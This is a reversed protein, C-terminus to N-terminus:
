CNGKTTDKPKPGHAPAACTVCQEQWPPAWTVSRCLSMHLAYPISTNHWAQQTPQPARAARQRAARATGWISVRLTRPTVNGTLQLSSQTGCRLLPQRLRLGDLDCIVRCQTCTLSTFEGAMELRLISTSGTLANFRGLLLATVPRLLLLLSCIRSTIADQLLRM